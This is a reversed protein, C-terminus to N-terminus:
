FEYKEELEKFVESAKVTKGEEIQKEAKQLKKEIEEELLKNKYEEMKMIVINNDNLTIVMEGNENIAAKLEQINKVQQM